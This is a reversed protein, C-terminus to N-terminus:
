QLPTIDFISDRGEDKFVIRDAKDHMHAYFGGLRNALQRASRPVNGEIVIDWDVCSENLLLNRVSGGVLYPMQQQESFYAMIQQLLQLTHSSIQDTHIQM